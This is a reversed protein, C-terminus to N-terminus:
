SSCGGPRTEAAQRTWFPGTSSKIISKCLDDGASTIANAAVPSGLDPVALSDVIPSVIDGGQCPRRRRERGSHGLLLLEIAEVKCLFTSRLVFLLVFPLINGSIAAGDTAVAPM